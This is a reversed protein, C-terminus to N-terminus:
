NVDFWAWMGGRVVCHVCWWMWIYIVCWVIRCCVDCVANRSDNRMAGGHRIFHWITDCWETGCGWKADACWWIGCTGCWWEVDCLWMECRRMAHCWMYCRMACIRCWLWMPIYLACRGMAFCEVDCWIGCWVPWLVGYLTHDPPILYTIHFSHSIHHATGSIHTSTFYQQAATTLHPQFTYRMAM